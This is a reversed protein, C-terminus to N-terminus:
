KRLKRNQAEIHAKLQNIEQQMNMMKAFNSNNLVALQRNSSSQPAEPFTQLKQNSMDNVEAELQEKEKSLRQNSNTLEAVQGELSWVRREHREVVKLHRQAERAAADQLAREAQKSAELQMRLGKVLEAQKSLEGKLAAVESANKKAKDGAAVRQLLAQREKEKADVEAKVQSLQSKLRSLQEESKKLREATEAAKALADAEAQRQRTGTAALKTEAEDLQRQRDALQKLAAQLESARSDALAQAAERERERAEVVDRASILQKRVVSFEAQSKSLEDALRDLDAQMGQIAARGNQAVQEDALKTAQAATGRAIDLAATADAVQKQLQRQEAQLQRVRAEAASARQQENALSSALAQLELRAAELEAAGLEAAQKTAANKEAARLAATLGKIEARYNLCDSELSQVLGSHVSEIAAQTSAIPALTATSRSRMREGSSSQKTGIATSHKARLRLKEIDSSAM